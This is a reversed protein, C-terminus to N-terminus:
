GFAFSYLLVTTGAGLAAGLLLGLLSGEMRGMRRQKRRAPQDPLHHHHPPVSLQERPPHGDATATSVDAAYTAHPDTAHDVPSHPTPSSTPHNHQDNTTRGSPHHDYQGQTTRTSPHSSRSSSCHRTTRTVRTSLTRRPPLAQGNELSTGYTRM